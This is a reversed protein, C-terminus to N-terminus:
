WFYPTIREVVVGKFEFDCDISLFRLNLPHHGPRHIKVKPLYKVPIPMNSFRSTSIKPVSVDFDHKARTLRMKQFKRPLKVRCWTTM